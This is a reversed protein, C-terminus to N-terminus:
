PSVFQFLHAPYGPYRHRYLQRRNWCFVFLRVACTLARLSRSFCRSKRALRALYHRLEANDAEVSYTQSKNNMALHLGPYYLLGDYVPAADSYYWDAQPASDLAGQVVEEDVQGAVTWGVICRTTRDVFTM